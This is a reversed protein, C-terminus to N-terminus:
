VILIFEIMYLSLATYMIDFVILLQLSIGNASLMQPDESFLATTIGIAGVLLPILIPYLLVPLMLERLRVNVTVASFSVGIVAIGWTALLIVLLLTGASHWWAINYFLGFFPLTILEVTVLLLFAAVTKGLCISWGPAPSSVLVDLCDNPLERAFSRNVILAGAFSYVLWLLGGSIAYLEERGLDFAFSFLVLIVLSFSLSATLSEKTRIETRLDKRAIALAAILGSRV